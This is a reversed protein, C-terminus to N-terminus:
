LDIAAGQQEGRATRAGRASWVPRGRTLAGDLYRGRRRGPSSTSKVGRDDPPASRAPVKGVSRLMASRTRAGSKRSRGVPVLEGPRAGAPERVNESSADFGYPPPSTTWPPDSISWHPDAGGDADSSASGTSM